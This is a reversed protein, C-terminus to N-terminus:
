REATFAGEDAVPALRDELVDGDEGAAREDGSSVPLLSSFVWIVSRPRARRMTEVFFVSDDDLAVAGVLRDLLPDLLDLRLGLVGSGLKTRSFSCSRRALSAPADGHDLQRPPRALPGARWRFSAREARRAATRSAYRAAPRSSPGHGRRGQDRRRAALKALREQLKERDFESRRGRRRRIRSSGSSSRRTPATARSSSLTKKTSVIRRRPRPRHDPHEGAQQGHGRHHVHRWTLIAIDELIAKRRDGFSPAKVGSRQSNRAAQQRRLTAWRRAMLM